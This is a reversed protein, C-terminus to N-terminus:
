AKPPMTLGQQHQLNETTELAIGQRMLDDLALKEAIICAQSLDSRGDCTSVAVLYLADHIASVDAATQADTKDETPYQGQWKIGHRKVTKYGYSIMSQVNKMTLSVCAVSANRNHCSALSLEIKVSDIARLMALSSDVAPQEASVSLSYTLAAAIFRRMM